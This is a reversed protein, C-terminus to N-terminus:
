DDKDPRNDIIVGDRMIMDFGPFTCAFQHEGVDGDSLHMLVILQVLGDDSHEIVNSLCLWAPVRTRSLMVVDGPLLFPKM